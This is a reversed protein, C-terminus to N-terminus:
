DGAELDKEERGVRLGVVDMGALMKARLGVVHRRRWGLKGEGVVASRMGVDM